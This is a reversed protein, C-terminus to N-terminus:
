VIFLDNAIIIVSKLRWKNGENLSIVKEVKCTDCEIALKCDPLRGDKWAFIWEGMLWVNLLVVEYAVCTGKLKLKLLEM